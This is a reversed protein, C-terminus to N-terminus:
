APPLDIDLDEILDEAPDEAPAPPPDEAAMVLPYIQTMLRLRSTEDTLAALRAAVVRLFVQADAPVNGMNLEAVPDGGLPMLGLASQVKRLKEPQTRHKGHEVSGVTNESVGARRALTAQSWGLTERAERVRVAVQERQEEQGM